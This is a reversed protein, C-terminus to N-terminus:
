TTALEWTEPHQETLARIAAIQADARAIATQGGTGFFQPEVWISFFQADLGGARARAADFHGDPLQQNIDEGEDVMRQVTDAHMDILIARRHIADADASRAAVPQTPQESTPPMRRETCAHSAFLAGSLCLYLSVRARLRM